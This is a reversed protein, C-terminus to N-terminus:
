TDSPHIFVQVAMDDRLDEPEFLEEPNFVFEEDEEENATDDGLGDDSGGRLGAM